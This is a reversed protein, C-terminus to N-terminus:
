LDARGFMRLSQVLTELGYPTRMINHGMPLIAERNEYYHGILLRLWHKAEAPVDAATDGYGAKYTITIPSLPYLRAGPWTKGPSPIVVGPEVTTDAIYDVDATLTHVTGQYDRYTISEVSQLPAQPLLFRRRFEDTTYSLTQTILARQLVTWELYERAGTLLSALYEDDQGHPDWYSTYNAGTVPRDAAAATHSEKCIYDNGDTGVVLDHEVYETEASWEAGEQHEIRLHHKLEQLTLPEVAPGSTIRVPM